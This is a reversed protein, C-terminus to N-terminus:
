ITYRTPLAVDVIRSDRCSTVGDGVAGADNGDSGVRAVASGGAAVAWSTRKLSVPMVFSGPSPFYRAIMLPWSRASLWYTSPAVMLFISRSRTVMSSLPRSCTSRSNQYEVQSAEFVGHLWPCRSM